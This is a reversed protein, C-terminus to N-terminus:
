SLLEQQSPWAKPEFFDKLQKLSFGKGNNVLMLQPKPQNPYVIRVDIEAKLKTQSGKFKHLGAL